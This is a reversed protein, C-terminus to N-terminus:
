GQPPVKGTMKVRGTSDDWTFTAKTRGNAEALAEGPKAFHYTVAIENDNTRTIDPVFGYSKRTATGLYTGNHFLLIAVPSDATALKVSITLWSLAACPEYGSIDAGATDWEANELGAPLPLDAIARGAADKIDTPGCTPSPTAASPKPDASTSEPSALVTKTITTTPVPGDSTCGALAMSLVAATAVASLISSFSRM